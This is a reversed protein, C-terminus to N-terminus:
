IFHERNSVAFETLLAVVQDSWQFFERDLENLKKFDDDSLRSFQYMRTETDSSPGEAGLIRFASRVVDASNSAGIMEFGQVANASLDGSPNAFYQSFGGNSVESFLRDVSIYAQLQPCLNQFGNQIQKQYAVGHPDPIDRLKLLAMCADRRVSSSQSSLGERVLEEADEHHAFVMAKLCAAFQYERPYGAHDRRLDEAFERVKNAPFPIERRLLVDLIEHMYRFGLDFYIENLLVSIARSEDILLLSEAIHNVDYSRGLLSELESFMTERFLPTGRNEKLCNLIGRCIDSTLDEDCLAEQIPKISENLGLRAISHVAANQVRQNTDKLKPEAIEFLETPTYPELLRLAIQFPAFFDDDGDTKWMEDARLGELVTPVADEGIDSLIDRALYKARGEECLLGVLFELEEDSPKGKPTLRLRLEHENAEARFRSWPM